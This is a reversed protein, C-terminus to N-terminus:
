VDAWVVEEFVCPSLTPVLVIHTHTLSLFLSASLEHTHTHTPSLSLSCSLSLTHTHSPSPPRRSQQTSLYQVPSGPRNVSFRADECSKRHIAGLRHGPSASCSAAHTTIHQPTPLHHSPLLDHLSSLLLTLVPCNQPALLWASRGFLHHVHHRSCLVFVM